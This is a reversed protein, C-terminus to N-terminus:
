SQCKKILYLNDGRRVLKDVPMTILAKKDAKSIDNKAEDRLIQVQGFVVGATHGIISFNDGVVLDQAQLQIEAVKRMNIQGIGFYVADAGNDIAAQLAEYSGAPALLEIELKRTRRLRPSPHNKTQKM